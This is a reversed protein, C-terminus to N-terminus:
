GCESGVSSLLFSRRRRGPDKAIAVSGKKLTLLIAQAAVLTLHGFKKKQIGYIRSQLAGVLLEINLCSFPFLRGVEM